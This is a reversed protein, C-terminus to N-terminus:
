GLRILMLPCDCEILIRKLTKARLHAMTGHWVVAIFDNNNKKAFSLIEEAPDGHFLSISAKIHNKNVSCFRKIFEKSWSAWEHQLYDEYYPASFKSQELTQETPSICIHLIDIKSSTKAIFMMVPALAESSGPTGNLPILTKQPSWLGNEIHLCVDPKILLVPKFTQEIVKATTSGMRLTTDCTKGHTGMVIYDCSKSEELIVEEPSGARQSIVFYELDEIKIKLKDLLEETTLEEDSIHLICLTMDLLKAISKAPIFAKISAESSDLPLLVKGKM